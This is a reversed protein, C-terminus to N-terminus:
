QRVPARRTLEDFFNLLFTVHVSRNVDGPSETQPSTGVVFRKGDSTRDPNTFGINVNQASSWPQPKEAAFSDGKWAATMIRNDLGLYSLERGDRSWIPFQGGSTSITSKGSGAPFPRVYVERRGSETSTFAIWRGDPSFAPSEEDFSSQHFLVPQGAKPHEPDTTDLSLTWLGYKKEANQEGYAVREGDLSLSYPVLRNKSARLIQAEGAGDARIWQLSWNSTGQSEFVIHKGDPTWLPYFNTTTQTTFTLQTRRERELDYVEIDSNTSFALRGGDPSLRPEYYIGPTALLPQTRGARDLWALTWTGTSAKGSLYVFTGNRSFDFQGGATQSDGAVDNLLPTPTGQTELRELDFPVGFLTRQHLYVLYGKGNSTALYRAFYGGPAVVKVQGTKLSLVEISSDDYNSATKNGTFLVSGGGPLIQPWRHTAEGKEVPNTLAQPMGGAAPVRSLGVGTESDLTAIINDDEGWDAGRGANADCLPIVTSGRVSIKKMKGTAFFGIWDGKPSFFPDAAGETGSLLTLQTEDLLRTALQTNGDPGHVLFVLRTGDHSITATTNSGRIADPGLDVSLRLLPHDVTQPPKWAIWWGIAAVMGLTLTALAWPVISRGSSVAPAYAEGETGGALAEEIVIRADGIAQLRQKCDKRLCQRLLQRVAAPTQAPLATWDPEDRLVAVLIDSASKGAFARKGSLMEFVVAGFSWIDARPDAEAGQAQEPSMYAATGMITGARTIALTFTSSSSSDDGAAPEETAKALGFDLVKVVGQPTVMVNAPKLDRHVIGKEHAAELAEAIQRAYNLATEAPVPGKLNEGEVLEMVLARDEVSYIQAINPHNLSALLKAERQFRALREPDKAFVEPLIKIAVERDLTLDKARYVEGMGGKGIPALIEYPGLKDGLKVPM